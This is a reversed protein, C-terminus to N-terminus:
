RSPAATKEDSPPVDSALDQPSFDEELLPDDDEMLPDHDPGTLAPKAFTDRAEGTVEGVSGTSEAPHDSPHPPPTDDGAVSVAREVIETVPATHADDAEVPAPAAEGVPEVPADANPTM